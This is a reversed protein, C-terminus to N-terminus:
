GNRVHVSPCEVTMKGVEVCSSVNISVQHWRDDVEGEGFGGDEGRLFRREAVESRSFGNAGEENLLCKCRFAKIM